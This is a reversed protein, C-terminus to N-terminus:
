VPESAVGFDKMHVSLLMLAQQEEAGAAVLTDAQIDSQGLIEELQMINPRARV